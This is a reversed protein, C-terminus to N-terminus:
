LHLQKNGFLFGVTVLAVSKFLELATISREVPFGFREAVPYGVLASAAVILCVITIWFASRNRYDSRDSEAKAANWQVSPQSVNVEDISVNVEDIDSESVFEDERIDNSPTSVHRREQKGDAM